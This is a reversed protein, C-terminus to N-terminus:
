WISLSRSCVSHAATSLRDIKVVDDHPSIGSSWWTVANCCQVCVKDDLDWFNSQTVVKTVSRRWFAILLLETNNESSWSKERERVGDGYMSSDFGSLWCRSYIRKLYLSHQFLINTSGKLFSIIEIYPTSLFIYVIANICLVAERILDIHHWRCSSKRKFQREIWKESKESQFILSAIQRRNLYCSTIRDITM